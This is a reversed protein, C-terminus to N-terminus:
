NRSHSFRHAKKPEARTMTFFTRNINATAFQQFWVVIAAMPNTRNQENCPSDNASNTETTIQFGVRPFPETAPLRLKGIL